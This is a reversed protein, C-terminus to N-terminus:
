RGQAEPKRPLLEERMAAHYAFTAMVVANIMM